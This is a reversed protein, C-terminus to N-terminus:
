ASRKWVLMTRTGTMVVDGHQNRISLLVKVLGQKPRSKSERASIVESTVYITDNIKVPKLAKIEDFELNAAAHGSILRSHIGVAMGFTVIHEVILDGFESKKAFDRNTHPQSEIGLLITLSVCDSEIITRGHSSEIVRGVVFDEYFMAGDEVFRNEDKQILLSPLQNSM